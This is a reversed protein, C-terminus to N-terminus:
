FYVQASLTGGYSPRLPSNNNVALYLAFFTRAGISVENTLFYELGVSAGPGAFVQTNTTKDPNDRFLYLVDLELGAWPRLSEQLFLYRAYLQGGTGLLQRSAQETLFMALPVRLGLEFGNDLYWAGDLVAMLGTTVSADTFRMPSLEIGIHRNAFQAHAAAPAALLACILLPRM